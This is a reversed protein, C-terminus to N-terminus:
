HLNNGADSSPNKQRVFHSTIHSMSSLYALITRSTSELNKVRADLIQKWNKVTNNFLSDLRDSEHLVARFREMPPPQPVEIFTARLILRIYWSPQKPAPPQEHTM